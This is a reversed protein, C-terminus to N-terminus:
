VNKRLLTVALIHFFINKPFIITAIKYPCPLICTRDFIYLRQKARGTTVYCAVSEIKDPDPTFVRYWGNNNCDVSCERTHVNVTQQDGNEMQLVVKINTDGFYSFGLFHLEDTEADVQLVQGDCYFNDKEGLSLEFPVGRSSHLYTEIKNEKIDIYLGSLGADSKDKIADSNKYFLKHNFCKRIDLSFYQLERNM